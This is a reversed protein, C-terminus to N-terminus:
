LLLRNQDTKLDLRVDEQDDLLRSQRVMAPHTRNRFVAAAAAIKESQNVNM